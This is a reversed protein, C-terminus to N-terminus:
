SSKIHFVEYHHNLAKITHLKTLTSLAGADSAAEFFIRRVRSHVLAMSCMTCPEHSLYIDYGTCLYPGYKTLNDARSADIAACEIPTSTGTFREAGFGVNPFKDNILARMRETHGAMSCEVTGKDVADDDINDLLQTWAGGHQTRAVADILVMACHMLPHSHVKEYGIAVIKLSRPDVAVGVANWSLRQRLYQCVSMMQIHFATQKDSFLKATTIDELYKNPHFKCPWKANAENHQWKLMPQHSAVGVIEINKCVDIRLERAVGREALYLELIIGAVPDTANVPSIHTLLRQNSWWKNNEIQGHSNTTWESLIRKATEVGRAAEDIIHDRFKTPTEINAIFDTIAAVSCLIIKTRNVRKLHNLEHLPLLLSFESVMKSISKVDAITGVFVNCLKTSQTYEDSLVPKITTACDYCTRNDDFKKRKSPIETEGVNNM